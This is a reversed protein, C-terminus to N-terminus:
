VHDAGLHKRLIEDLQQAAREISCEEIVFRRAADAMRDREAGDTLLRELAEAYAAIDGASTLLGTVGHRVVEPVGAVAQAVVPLGAAQAELYALGYAEGTGPWAYISSQRLIEAIEQTGRQGHWVIRGPPMTAFLAEVEERLPGDGVVSLAWPLHSLRELAAALMRYSEMKDGPRMMAVAALRGARPRPAESLFPTRDIFPQLLVYRGEPAGEVLGDRDRRTFCINVAAARVTEILRAQNDAWIGQNRRRSYSAEATLYALGFRRALEPGILDPAKYYPHYCFWADPAGEVSWLKTLRDVEATAEREIDARGSGAPDSSFTRLESAITVTHGAPALAEILLRAMLRDGSPVPHNPSKLPSYFAIKM